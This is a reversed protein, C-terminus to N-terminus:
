RVAWMDHLMIEYVTIWIEAVMCSVLYYTMLHGLLYSLIMGNVQSVSQINKQYSM